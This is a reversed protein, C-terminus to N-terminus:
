NNYVKYMYKVTEAVKERLSLPLLVEVNTGYQMLWYKMAELSVKLTVEIHEEDSVKVNFDTGFWDIIDGIVSQKCRLTVKETREGFMYPLTTDLNSLGLGNKYGILSKLPKSYENLIEMNTIRDLRLYRIDDYKDLNCILYYRQNHILMHYPNVVYPHDSKPILKKHIDYMNYTFKVKLNKEIAEDIIEVNYFVSKNETKTWQKNYYLYKTGSTFHKGGEKILKKILDESHKNDIHRSALVSDILLKIESKEFRRLDLYVGDRSGEISYGAEKLNSINRGIAKRECEIGYNKYLLDIIQQQTLPHDSDTYEELIQVVRLIIMKKSEM